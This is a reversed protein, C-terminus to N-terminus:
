DDLRDIWADVEDLDIPAIDHSNDGFYYFSLNVYRGYSQRFTDVWYRYCEKQSDFIMTDESDFSIPESITYDYVYQRWGTIIYKSSYIDDTHGTMFTHKIRLARDTFKEIKYEIGTNGFIMTKTDPDYNLKHRIFFEKDKEGSFKCYAKWAYYANSSEDSLETKFFVSEIMYGDQFCLKDPFDMTIQAHDHPMIVNWYNTQTTTTDMWYAHFDSLTYTSVSGDHSLTSILDADIKNLEEPSDSCAVTLAAITLFIFPKLRM